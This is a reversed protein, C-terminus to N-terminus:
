RKICLVDLKKVCKTRITELRVQFLLSLVIADETESSGHLDSHLPFVQYYFIAIYQVNLVAAGLSETHTAFFTCELIKGDSMVQM